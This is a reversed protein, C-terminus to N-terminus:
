FLDKIWHDMLLLNKKERKTKYEREIVHSLLAAHSMRSKDATALTEDWNDLLETLRLSKLTKAREENTM